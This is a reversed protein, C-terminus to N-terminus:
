RTTEAGGYYWYVGAVLVESDDHPLVARTEIV